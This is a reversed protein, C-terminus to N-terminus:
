SAGRATDEFKENIAAAAPPEDENNIQEQPSAGALRLIEEADRIQRSQSVQLVRLLVRAAPIEALLIRARAVSQAVARALVQRDHWAGLADQLEALWRVQEKVAGQGLDYLLETRYRLAKTAIRLAHLDDVARTERARKLAAQWKRQARQASAQLRALLVEAPEAPSEDVLRLALVGYGEFDLSPLKREARAIEKRRKKMVYARVLAWAQRYPESRARREQKAVAELLVDCNRWEGLERRVRRAVRRLQKVKGARPKPFVAGLAQQLRRSAVRVDHIIKPEAEARAKPALAVFKKVRRRFLRTLARRAVEADTADARSARREDALPPKTDSESNM